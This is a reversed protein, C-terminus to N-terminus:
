RRGAGVIVTDFVAAAPETPIELLEAVRRLQPRVATKGNVVRVAPLDGEAPLVGSLQAKDAAVDPQIWRFRIQNRDFSAGSSRARPTAEIDAVVRALREREVPGIEAFVAVGGIEEATVM